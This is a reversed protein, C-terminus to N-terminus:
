YGKWLYLAQDKCTLLQITLFVAFYSSMQETRALSFMIMVSLITPAWKQIVKSGHFQFPLICFVGDRNRLSYCIICFQPEFRWSLRLLPKRVRVALTQLASDMKGGGDLTDGMYWVVADALANTYDFCSLRSDAIRQPPAFSRTEQYVLTHFIKTSM